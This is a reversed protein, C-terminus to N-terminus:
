HLHVQKSTARAILMFGLLLQLGNATRRRANLITCLSMIAKRGEVPTRNETPNRDRDGLGMFLKYVDPANLPVAQVMSLKTGM